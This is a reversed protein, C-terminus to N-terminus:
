ALRWDRILFGAAVAAAVVLLGAVARLRFRPAGLWLALLAKVITNSVIGIGIASAATHVLGPTTGLRSMAFTLADVDTLGFLAASPLVAETGWEVRILAVAMLVFQLVLALQIATWLRLPNAAEDPVVPPEDATGGHHVALGLLTGAIIGPVLFPILEIAVATNLVATVIAVRVLLVTSAAVVGLALPDSMGPELRSQRAFQMTVATSSVLGGLLGALPYGRRPGAAKRAIYGFFSLASFLLVVSWLARPQVGGFPGYPGRPLVPLVVLALVAFQLAARLEVPGVRHVLWHLRAKEGLAIVVIAAAGSALALHGAGALTGLALVVLAAGETTGDTEAAPRRVTLVYAAVVLAGGAALFTASVVPATPLFLGACGGLLGLLLFTRLGAFRAAAGSAHGSHEREFGVALGILGAIALRAALFDIVGGIICAVRTSPFPCPM